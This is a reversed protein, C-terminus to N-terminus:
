DQDKRSFYHDAQLAKAEVSLSISCTDVIKRAVDLSGIISKWFNCELEGHILADEVDCGEERALNELTDKSPLKLGKEKYDAVIKAFTKRFSANGSGKMSQHRAEATAKHFTAEQYLELIKVSFERCQAPVLDPPISVKFYKEWYGMLQGAIQYRSGFAEAFRDHLQKGKRLSEVLSSARTTTPDVVEDAM